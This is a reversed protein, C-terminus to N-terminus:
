SGPSSAETWVRTREMQSYRSFLGRCYLLIVTTAPWRGIEKLFSANFIFAIFCECLQLIPQFVRVGRELLLPLHTLDAEATILADFGEIGIVGWTLSTPEALWRAFDERAILLRGAFGTLELPKNSPKM